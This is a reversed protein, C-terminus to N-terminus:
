SLIYLKKIIVEQQSMREQKRKEEEYQTKVKKGQAKSLPEWKGQFYL